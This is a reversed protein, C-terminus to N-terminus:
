QPILQIVSVSYGLPLLLEKIIRIQNDLLIDTTKVEVFRLFNENVITLDPWGSKYRRFNKCFTKFLSLWGIGGTSDWIKGLTKIEELSFEHHDIKSCNEEIVERSINRFVNQLVSNDEYDFYYNFRICTEYLYQKGSWPHRVCGLNLSMGVCKLLRM